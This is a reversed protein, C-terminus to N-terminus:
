AKNPLIIWDTQVFFDKDGLIEKAMTNETPNLNYRETYIDTVNTIVKERIREFYIGSQRMFREIEERSSFFYGSRKLKPIKIGNFLSAIRKRWEDSDENASGAHEVIAFQKTTRVIERLINQQNKWSNWQLLFRAVEVDISKDEFPLRGADALIKVSAPNGELASKNIDVAITKFRYESLEKSLQGLLEGRFSGLDAITYEKNPTLQKRIENAFIKQTEAYTEKAAKSAGKGSFIRSTNEGMNQAEITRQEIKDM